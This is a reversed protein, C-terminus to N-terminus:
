DVSPRVKPAIRAGAVVAVRPAVAPMALKAQRQLKMAGMLPKGALLSAM